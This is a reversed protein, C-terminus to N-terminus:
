RRRNPGAYVRQADVFSVGAAESCLPRELNKRKDASWTTQMGRTHTSKVDVGGVGDVNVGASFTSTASRDRVVEDGPNVIFAMEARNRKRCWARSPLVKRKQLSGTWRGGVIYPKGTNYGGCVVKKRQYKVGAVIERSEKPGLVRKASAGSGRGELAQFGAKGGASASVEIQSATTMAFTANINRTMWVEAVPTLKAGTEGASMTVCMGSQLRKAGASRKMAGPSSPSAVVDQTVPPAAQRLLAGRTVLGEPRWVFFRPVAARDTLAVVFLNAAGEAEVAQRVLDPAPLQFAYTGDAAATTTALPTRAPDASAFLGVTAATPAGAADTITGRIDLPAVDAHATAASAVLAAGTILSTAIARTRM